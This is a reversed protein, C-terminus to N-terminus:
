GNAKYENRRKAAGSTIKVALVTGENGEAFGNASSHNNYFLWCLFNSLRM